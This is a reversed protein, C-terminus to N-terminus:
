PLVISYFGDDGVASLNTGANKTVTQVVSNNHPVAVTQDPRIVRVTTAPDNARNYTVDDSSAYRLSVAGTTTDRKYLLYASKNAALPVGSGPHGIDFGSVTGRYNLQGVVFKMEALWQLFKGSGAYRKAFVASGYLHLLPGYRAHGSAFTGFTTGKSNNNGFSHFGFLGHPTQLVIAMCSGLGPFGIKRADFGVENEKLFIAM